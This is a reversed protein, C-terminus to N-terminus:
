FRGHRWEPPRDFEHRVWPGLPVAETFIWRLWLTREWGADWPMFV